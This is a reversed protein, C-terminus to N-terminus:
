ELAVVAVRLEMLHATRIATSGAALAADTWRPIARGAATYATATRGDTPRDPQLVGARARRGVVVAAVAPECQGVAARSGPRGRHGPRPPQSGRGTELHLGGPPWGPELDSVGRRRREPRAPAPDREGGRLDVREPKGPTGPRARDAARRALGARHPLRGAGPTAAGGPRHPRGLDADRRPDSCSAWSRRRCCPTPSSTFAGFLVGTLLVGPVAGRRELVGQLFLTEESVAPLAAVMAVVILWDATSM